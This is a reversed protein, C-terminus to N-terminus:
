KNSIKGASFTGEGGLETLDRLNHHTKHYFNDFDDSTRRGEKRLHVARCSKIPEFSIYEECKGGEVGRGWM